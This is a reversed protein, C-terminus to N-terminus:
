CGSLTSRCIRLAGGGASYLKEICGLRGGCWVVLRTCEEGANKHAELMGKFGKLVAVIPRLFPLEEAITLVGSIAQGALDSLITGELVM